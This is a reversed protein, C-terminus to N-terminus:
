ATRNPGKAASLEKVKAREIWEDAMTRLRTRVDKDSCTEALKRLREAEDRCFQAETRDM